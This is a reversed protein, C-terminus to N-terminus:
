NMVSTTKCPLLWPALSHIAKISSRPKLLQRFAEHDWRASEDASGQHRAASSNVCRTPSSQIHSLPTFVYLDPRMLLSLAPRSAPRHHLHLTNLSIWLPRLKDPSVRDSPDSSGGAFTQDKERRGRGRVDTAKSAAPYPCRVRPSSARISRRCHGASHWPGSRRNPANRQKAAPGRM